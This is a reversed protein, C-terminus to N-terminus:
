EPGFNGIDFNERIERRPFRDLLFRKAKETKRVVDEPLGFTFLEKPFPLSFSLVHSTSTFLASLFIFLPFSFTPVQLLIGFPHFV